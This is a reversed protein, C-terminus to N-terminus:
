GHLSLLQVTVTGGTWATGGNSLRITWWKPFPLLMGILSTGQQGICAVDFWESGAAPAAGALGISASGGTAWGASAGSTSIGNRTHMNVAGTGAAPVAPPDAPLVHGRFTLVSTGDGGTMGSWSLKFRAYLALDGDTQGPFVDSFRATGLDAANFSNNVIEGFIFSKIEMNDEM